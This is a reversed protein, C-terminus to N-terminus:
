PQYGCSSDAVYWLIFKAIKNEQGKLKHDLYELVLRIMQIIAIILSGFALTGMHYRCSFTADRLFVFKTFTLCHWDPRLSPLFFFFLLLLLKNCFNGLHEGCPAWFHSHLFTKPNTSHGTTPPLHVLWPWRELHSLLTSSGSGCLCSIFRSIFPTGPLFYRLPLVSAYLVSAREDVSFIVEVFSRNKWFKRKWLTVLLVFEAYETPVTSVTTEKSSCTEFWVLVLKQAGVWLILAELCKSTVVTSSFSVCTASLVPVTTARFCNLFLIFAFKVASAFIFIFKERLKDCLVRFSRATVFIVASFRAFIRHLSCITRWVFTRRCPQPFLISLFHLFPFWTASVLEIENTWIIGFWGREMQEIQVCISGCRLTHHVNSFFIGFCVFRLVCLFIWLSICM